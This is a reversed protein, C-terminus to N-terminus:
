ATTLSPEYDPVPKQGINVCGYAVTKVVQQTELNVAHCRLELSIM